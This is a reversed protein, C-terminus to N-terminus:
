RVMFSTKFICYYGENEQTGASTFCRRYDQWLQQTCKYHRSTDEEAVLVAMEQLIETIEEDKQTLGDELQQVRHEVSDTSECEGDLVSM